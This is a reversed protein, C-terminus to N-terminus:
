LSIDGQNVASNEFSFEDLPTTAAVAATWSMPSSAPRLRLHQVELQAGLQADEPHRVDM